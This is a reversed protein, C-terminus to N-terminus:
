KTVTKIGNKITIGNATRTTRRGTLDYTDPNTDAHEETVFEIATPTSNINMKISKPANGEITLFFLFPKLTQTDSSAAYFKGGSLAYAGTTHMDTKESYIGTLAFTTGAAERVVKGNGETPTDPCPMLVADNEHTFTIPLDVIDANPKFIYPTNPKVKDVVTYWEMTHATGDYSIAMLEAMTGYQKWDDYTMNFPVYFAQWNDSHFTRTYNVTVFRSEETNSYPTGDHVLNIVNEFTEIQFDKWVDADRYAQEAEAPVRLHIYNTPLNEFMYNGLAPPTTCHSTISTLRFCNGFALDGIDTVNCGWEVTKLYECMYFAYSSIKTVSNCISVSKLGDCFYFAAFIETVDYTKGYYEVIAPIIIDGEYEYDEVDDPVPMVKCTNASTIKYYIVKGQENVASFKKPKPLPTGIPQIDLDKWYDAAKYNDMASEPVLVMCDYPTESFTYEQATPPNTCHSTIAVLSSCDYFAGNGITNVNSSWEMTEVDCGAFAGDGIATVTYTTGNHEVTTPIVINGTYSDIDDLEYQYTPIVKCTTPSTTEYCINDVAFQVSPFAGIPKVIFDQYYETAKYTYVAEAPVFLIIEETPVEEFVASGDLIPPTTARMTISYLGNCFEFAAPGIYTLNPGLDIEELAGCHLFEEGGITTIAPFSAKKLNNSWGFGREGISTVADAGTITTLDHCSFFANDDITTVSSGIAISTIDSDCFASNGIQTVTYTIGNYDVTTPIVVDGSYDNEYTDWLNECVFNDKNTVEVENTKGALINYYIGDVKFDYAQAPLCGLVAFLLLILM